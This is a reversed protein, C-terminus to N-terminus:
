KLGQLLRTLSDVLSRAAQTNFGEAKAIEPGGEADEVAQLAAAAPPLQTQLTTVLQALTTRAKEADNRVARVTAEPGKLFAPLDVATDPVGTAALVRAKKQPLFSHKRQRQADADAATFNPKGSFRKLDLDAVVPPMAPALKVGPAPTGAQPKPTAAAPTAEAPAIAPLVTKASM